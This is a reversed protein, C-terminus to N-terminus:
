RMQALYLRKSSCTPPTQDWILTSAALAEAPQCTAAAAAANPALPFVSQHVQKVLHSIFMYVSNIQNSPCFAIIGTKTNRFHPLSRAPSNRERSLCRGGGGCARAKAFFSFWSETRRGNMEFQFTKTYYYSSCVNVVWEKCM